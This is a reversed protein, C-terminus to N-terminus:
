SRRSTILKKLKKIARYQILRVALATKGLSKATERTTFDAIFRLEIVSRYVPPLQRILKKLAALGSRTDMVAGQDPDVPMDVNDDLEYEQPTRSSRRYYDTVTNIAIRYLWASFNDGGRFSPLARWAKLFTEQLLDEATHVHGVKLRLLRFLPASFRDYLKEFCKTDGQCAQRILKTLEKNEM